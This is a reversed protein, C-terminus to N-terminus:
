SLLLRVHHEIGNKSRFHVGANLTLGRQYLVAFPMLSREM